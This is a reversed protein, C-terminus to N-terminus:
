RNAQDDIRLIRIHGQGKKVSMAPRGPTAASDSDRADKRPVERKGARDAKQVPRAGAKQDATGPVQASVLAAPCLFAAMGSAALRIQLLRVWCTLQGAPVNPHAPRRPISDRIGPRMSDGKAAWQEIGTPRRSGISTSTSAPGSSKRFLSVPKAAPSS